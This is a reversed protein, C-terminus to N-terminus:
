KEFGWCNRGLVNLIKTTKIINQDIDDSLNFWGKYNILLLVLEICLNIKICLSKFHEGVVFPFTLKVDSFVSM